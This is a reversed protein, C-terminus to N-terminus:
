PRVCLSITQVYVCVQPLNAVARDYVNRIAIANEVGEGEELKIYDFWMDYNYPDKLLLQEFKDRKTQLVAFEIDARTGHRKEFLLYEQKLEKVDPDDEVSAADGNPYYAKKKNRLQDLAYLYIVKAREYEKAREEFRAFNLLLQENKEQSHLEQLSREYVTRTRSSERNSEEWKAYKLYARTTPTQKVYREFIARAKEVEGQRMEFKVYAGWAQDNPHWQMWREFLSRTNDIAGVMEEMYTYKYWFSDIRPLLTVARDWINRAHNIFKNKMEMEAYKFYIKPERYDAELAREFVSRARVFDLQNAEFEAYKLWLGVSQRQRRLQDEFEKRKTQQYLLLEEKDTIFQQPKKETEELGREQSERLIQEATIQIPAPARNKIVPGKGAMKVQAERQFDREGKLM